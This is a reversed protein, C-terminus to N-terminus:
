VYVLNAHNTDFHCLQQNFPPINRLNVLDQLGDTYISSFADSSAEIHATSQCEMANIYDCIDLSEISAKATWVSVDFHHHERSGIM